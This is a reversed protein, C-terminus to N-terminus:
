RSASTRASPSIATTAPCRASSRSARSARGPGRAASRARSCAYAIADHMLALSSNDGIVMQAPAAGFLPALLARLEPLGQLVGYNRTDTGDAALFDGAGPLALLASSLDLQESSPKGRTLDLALGRQRFADYRRQVDQHISSLDATPLTQLQPVPLFRYGSFHVSRGSM